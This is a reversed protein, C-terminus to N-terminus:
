FTADVVPIVVYNITGALTGTGTFELDLGEGPACVLWPIPSFPLVLQGDSALAGIPVVFATTSHSQLTVATFAAGAALFAQVVAISYGAPPAAVITGSSTISVAMQQAAQPTSGIHLIGVQQSVPTTAQYPM